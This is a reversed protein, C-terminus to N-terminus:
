WGVAFSADGYALLSYCPNVGFEIRAVDQEGLDDVAYNIAPTGYITHKVKCLSQHRLENGGDTVLLRTDNPQM